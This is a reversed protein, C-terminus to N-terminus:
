QIPQIEKFRKIEIDGHEPNLCYLDFKLVGNDEWVDLDMNTDIHHYGACTINHRTIFENTRDFAQTLWRKQM